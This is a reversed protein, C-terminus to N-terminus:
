LLSQVYYDVWLRTVYAGDFDEIVRQRANKGMTLIWEPHDAFAAMAERLSDPDSMRCRLGTVNDLMADIVGYADSCIAPIAMAAAEIVSTGFGERLTPLVFVDGAQLLKQPENTLGYYCFNKGPIINHYDSFHAAVNEEDDGVLLLYVDNRERALTDFAPLLDYLGKDHNLRGLFIFVTKDDSINLETRIGNRVQESPSFRALDVGSISGKGLVRSKNDSVVGNRILYQRQGESDTLINTDLKAILKDLNKLIWRGLGTKNAWVQGTFIHIRVPVGALWGAIATLLGAKPTVSHVSAYKEARFRKYLKILAKFDKVISIGRKIEISYFEDCNVTVGAAGPANCIYHVTFHRSLEKMHGGLFATATSPVATIFCIKKKDM